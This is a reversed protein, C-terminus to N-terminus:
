ESNRHSTVDDHTESDHQDAEGGANEGIVGSERVDDASRGYEQERCREPYCDAVPGRGTLLQDFPGLEGLALQQRSLEMVRDGVM